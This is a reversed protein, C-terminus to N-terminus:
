ADSIGTQSGSIDGEGGLRFTEVASSELGHIGSDNRRDEERGGGGERWRGSGVLDRVGGDIEGGIGDVARFDLAGM